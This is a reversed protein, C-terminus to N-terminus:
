VNLDHRRFTNRSEVVNCYVMSGVHEVYKATQAPKSKLSNEPVQSKLREIRTYEKIRSRQLVGHLWRTGPVKSNTHAKIEALKRPSSVSSGVSIHRLLSYVRYVITSLPETWVPEEKWWRLKWARGAITSAIYKPKREKWLILSTFDEVTRKQTWRRQREKVDGPWRFICATIVFTSCRKHM